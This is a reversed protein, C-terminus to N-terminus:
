SKMLSERVQWLSRKNGSVSGHCGSSTSRFSTQGERDEVIGLVLGRMGLIDALKQAYYSVFKVEGAFRQAGEPDGGSVSEKGGAINM